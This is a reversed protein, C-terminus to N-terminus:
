KSNLGGSQGVPEETGVHQETPKVAEFNLMVDAKCRFRNCYSSCLPMRHNLLDALPILGESTKSISIAGSFEMAICWKADSNHATKGDKSIMQEVVSCIILLTISSTMHARGQADDQVDEEYCFARSSALTVARLFADFSVLEVSIGALEGAECSMAAQLAPEVLQEFVQQLVERDETACNELETGDLLAVVHSHWLLPLPESDPLCALYTNWKSRAGLAKEVLICVALRRSCGVGGVNEPLTHLLEPGLIRQTASTRESLM